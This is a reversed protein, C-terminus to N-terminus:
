DEPRSATLLREAFDLREELEARVALEDALVARSEELAAVCDGMRQELEDVRSRLEKIEKEKAPHGRALKVVADAVIGTVTVAFILEFLGM